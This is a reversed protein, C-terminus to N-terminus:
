HVTHTPTPHWHSWPELPTLAGLALAARRRWLYKEDGAFTIKM